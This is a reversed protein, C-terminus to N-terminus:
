HCHSSGPESPLESVSVVYDTNVKFMATPLSWGSALQLASADDRRWAISLGNPEGGVVGVGLGDAPGDFAALAAGSLLVLAGIM